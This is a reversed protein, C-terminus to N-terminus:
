RENENGVIDKPSRIELTSYGLRLNVSNYGRIRYVNVIHKFNWSVLLDVKSLTAVAIHICDDLSTPGVVKDDIYKQALRLAEPTVMILQKHNKNLNIFFEQVRIPASALESETLDSYVCIIQGLKVMEFLLTSEEEFETDFMGGFVSTDFYFRQIM